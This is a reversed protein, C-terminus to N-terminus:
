VKRFCLFILVSPFIMAFGINALYLYDQNHIPKILFFIITVIIGLILITNKIIFRDVRCYLLYLAGATILLSLLLTWNDETNEYLGRYLIALGTLGISLSALFHILQHSEGSVYRVVLPFFRFFLIGIALLFLAPAFLLMENVQSTDFIGKSVITKRTTLEWFVLGTIGLLLIDINYRHLFTTATPRASKLNHLLLGMRAGITGPM